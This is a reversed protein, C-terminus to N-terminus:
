ITGISSACCANWDIPDCPQHHKVDVANNAVDYLYTTMEDCFEPKNIDKEFDWIRTEVVLYAPAQPMALARPHLFDLFTQCDPNNGDGGRKTACADMADVFRKRNLVPNIEHMHFNRLHRRESDLAVYREYDIPNPTWDAFMRFSNWPYWEAGNTWVFVFAFLLLISRRAGKAAVKRSLSADDDNDPDWVAAALKDGAGPLLGQHPPPGGGVKEEDDDDDDDHDHDDDDSREEAGSMPAEVLRAIEGRLRELEGRADVHNVVVELARTLLRQSLPM